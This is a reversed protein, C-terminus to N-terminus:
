VKTLKITRIINDGYSLEDATVSDMKFLHSSYDPHKYTVYLGKHYDVVMETTSEYVLTGFFERGARALPCDTTSSFRAEQFHRARVILTVEPLTRKGTGNFWNRISDFLKNM